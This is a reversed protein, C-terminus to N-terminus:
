RWWCAAGASFKPSPRPVVQKRRPGATEPNLASGSGGGGAWVSPLLVWWCISWPPVETTRRLGLWEVLLFGALWAGCVAGLTNISYFRAARRGSDATNKQLWAALVPLTGGMLITPGLLLLASLLANLCLLWVHHNLLGSGAPGFIDGALKYLFSFFFAYLGIAIEIGGYIVLPRRARDAFKGFLKNGLALGGMFVALVVTQAQITSGFILTLYDSWIVEYILATVGFFLVAIFYAHLQSKYGFPATSTWPKGAPSRLNTRKEAPVSFFKNLAIRYPPTAAGGLEIRREKEPRHLLLRGVPLITHRRQRAAWNLGDKKEPRHLLLRGVPLITPRHQRAAWNLGDKKEPRHLLM